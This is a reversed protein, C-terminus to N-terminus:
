IFLFVNFNQIHVEWADSFSSQKPTLLDFRSFVLNSKFIAILATSSPAIIKVAVKIM